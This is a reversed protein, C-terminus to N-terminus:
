FSSQLYYAPPNVSPFALPLHYKLCITMAQFIATATIKFLIFYICTVSRFSFSLVQKVQKGRDICLVVSICCWGECFFLLSSFPSIFAYDAEAIPNDLQIDQFKQMYKTADQKVIKIRDKMIMWYVLCNKSQHVPIQSEGILNSFKSFWLIYAM